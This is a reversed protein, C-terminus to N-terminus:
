ELLRYFRTSHTQRASFVLLKSCFNNEADCNIIVQKHIKHINKNDNFSLMASYSPMQSLM